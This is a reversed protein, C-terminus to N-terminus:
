PTRTDIFKELGFHINREACNPGFQRALLFPLPVSPLLSGLVHLLLLLQQPSGVSVNTPFFLEVAYLISVLEEKQFERVREGM